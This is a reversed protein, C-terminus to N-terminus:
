EQSTMNEVSSNGDVVVVQGRHWSCCSVTERKNRSQIDSTNGTFVHFLYPFMAGDMVSFGLMEEGSVM